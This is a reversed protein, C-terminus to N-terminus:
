AAQAFASIVALVVVVVGILSYPWLFYIVALLAMGFLTATLGIMLVNQDHTM